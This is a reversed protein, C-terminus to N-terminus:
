QVELMGSNAAALSGLRAVPPRGPISRRTLSAVSM